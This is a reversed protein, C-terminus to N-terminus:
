EGKNKNVYYDYANITEVYIYQKKNLLHIMEEEICKIFCKEFDEDYLKRLVDVGEYDRGKEIMDAVLVLKSLTNMNAKGSTHYKIADLIEEDKVKLVKEAIFAGLFAHYVPAPVNNPMCFDKYDDKNEYKAVDHLTCAIRVKESDLKLAKAKKLACLVVNITHILRKEPLKDKVFIEYKDGSYLNNKLIYSNVKEDILDTVPFSFALKERIETSSVTKGLYKLKVYKKNFALYFDKEVEQENFICDERFIVALNVANLIRKPEKWTKFDLLMDGGIIFYIEATKYLNRFYECTIYSYSKGQNKIEFDSIEVKEIGSFALKLMNIRDNASALKVNKNPTIFTPCIILKDLQLENIASVAMNFHENHVPNFTGGFIGIKM